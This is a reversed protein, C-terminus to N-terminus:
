RADRPRAGRRPPPAARPPPDGPSGDDDDDKMGDHRQAALRRNMRERVARLKNQKWGLAGALDDDGDRTSLITEYLTRAEPDGEFVKKREDLM